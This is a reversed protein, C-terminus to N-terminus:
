GLAYAARPRIRGKFYHHLFEAKYTAMDVKVPCDGKCGKCALCLDLAEKVDGNRWRGQIPGSAEAMEQLLRARGRTSHMEERTVMYSPCMVGESHRRCVGLGQCRLTAASFSGHDDPFQFHTEPQAPRYGAGLRLYADLPYPRVMKGPNMKGEPDWVDKFEELGKVLEHGLMKPLLEARVQGDGHEGSLSGGFSVVLDAAEEMFRRFQRIGDATRLNFDLRLHLCAQGFHGFLSGRYEFKNILKRLARLYDGLAEPPVASDEWGAWAIKGEPMYSTVGVGGERLKWVQRTQQPDTYRRMAPPHPQRALRKMAARAQAEAESMRDAGFEVLLWGEGEPLLAIGPKHEHRGRYYRLLEDDFGELGIPGFELIQCVHDGAAYVDEYGLVLLPRARPSHMLRLKAGLVIACTSESGVLARAVNFGQEPLLQDLNYGSVRRPINPYRERVLAGYRDRISRLAAFIEGKRGGRAIMRALEAENMRGGVRLRTGDYLLVDLEEVNDVTKGGLVSHVGCSNNGIMGGLTCRNHTAPDPAFTLHHREAPERLDDLVCGPEVRAWRQHPHLERVRNLHRSCDFVVAFNCTQGALGTGGGRMFVPAGHHRCVEVARVIEEVSRPEVVGLPVQRYISGDLAYLARGGADFRVAGRLTGRLDRGLAATNVQAPEPAARLIPM